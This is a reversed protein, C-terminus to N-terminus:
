DFCENYKSFLLDLVIEHKKISTSRCHRNTKRERQRIVNTRHNRRLQDLSVRRTRPLVRLYGSPNFALFTLLSAYWQRTPTNVGADSSHSSTPRPWHPRTVATSNPSGMARSASAADHRPSAALDSSHTQDSSLFIAVGSPVLLTVAEARLWMRLFSQNKMSLITDDCLEARKSIFQAALGLFATATKKWNRM